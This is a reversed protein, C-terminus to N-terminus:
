DNIIDKWRMMEFNELFVIKLGMHDVEDVNM